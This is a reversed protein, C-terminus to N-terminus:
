FSEGANRLNKEANAATFTKPSQPLTALPFDFDKLMSFASFLLLVGAVRWRRSSEGARM